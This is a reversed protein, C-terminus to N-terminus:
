AARLEFFEMAARGYVDTLEDESLAAKLAAPNAESMAVPFPHDTGCFVRARGALDV